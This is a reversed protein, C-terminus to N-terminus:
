ELPYGTRKCIGFRLQKPHFLILCRIEQWFLIASFNSQFSLKFFITGNLFSTGPVPTTVLLRLMRINATDLNRRLDWSTFLCRLWSLHYSPLLFCHIHQVCGTKETSERENLDCLCEAFTELTTYGAMSSNKPFESIWVFWVFCFNM